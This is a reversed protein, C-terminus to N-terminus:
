PAQLAGIVIVGFDAVERCDRGDVSKKERLVKLLLSKRL